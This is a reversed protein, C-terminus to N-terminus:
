VYINSPAGSFQQLIKFQTKAGVLMCCLNNMSDESRTLQIAKEFLEVARTLQGRQIEITALTEYAFECTRDIKIAENLMKVPEDFENKWTMINLARQVLLAANDPDKDLAIKYYKEAKEFNEQESLIQAYLNYAEPIDAYVELLKELKTTEAKLEESSHIISTYSDLNPNTAQIYMTFQAYFQRFEFFAKQLKAIKHSPNIEICKEFDKFCEDFRAKMAFVQARNCYIDENLPDYEIAREYNTFAREEDGRQLNLATLKICTNSKIRDINELESDLIQNFDEVAKTHECKLMYLSGRLNCAELRFEGSQDIEKSAHEICREYEGARFAEIADLMASSSSQQVKVYFEDNKFVVDNNLGIYFNNVFHQSIPISPRTKFIEAGMREGIKKVVKDAAAMSPGSFKNLICLATYDEFAEQYKELSELAKARRTLAKAYNPDIELAYTCDQVVDDFLKLNEYAAARNQFFKPLEQKDDKPCQQIANTYCKVADMFNGNQFFENGLNKIAVAKELPSMDDIKPDKKSGNLETKKSETKLGSSDTKKKTDNSNQEPKKKYMM